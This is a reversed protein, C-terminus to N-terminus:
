TVILQLVLCLHSDKAFRLLAQYNQLLVCKFDNIALNTNVSNAALIDAPLINVFSPGQKYICNPSLITKFNFIKLITKFDFIRIRSGNEQYTKYCYCAFMAQEDSLITAM